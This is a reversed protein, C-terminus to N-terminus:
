QKERDSRKRNVRNTMMKAGKGFKEGKHTGQILQWAECDLCIMISVCVSTIM